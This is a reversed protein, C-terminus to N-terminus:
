HLSNNSVKKKRKINANLTNSLQLFRIELMQKKKKVHEKHTCIINSIEFLLM